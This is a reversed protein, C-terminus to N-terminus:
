LCPVMGIDQSTKRACGMICHLCRKNCISVSEDQQYDVAENDSAFSEPGQSALPSCVADVVSDATVVCISPM